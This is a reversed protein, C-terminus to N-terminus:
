IAQLCCKKYKKGSGCPCPDNRGISRLPNRIPEGAYAAPADIGFADAGDHALATLQEIASGFPEFYEWVVDSLARGNAQTDRLERWYDAATYDEGWADTGHKVATEALGSLGSFGLAAVAKAYGFWVDSAGPLDLRAPLGALYDYVPKDAIRGTGALYALALLADCRQYDHATKCEVLRLLPAPDGDYTAVLMHPYSTVVAEQGLASDLKAADEGLRCIDKFCATDLMEALLHTIVSLSRETRESLDEERVYRHLLTRFRPAFPEWQALADHIAAEPVGEGAAFADLVDDLTM